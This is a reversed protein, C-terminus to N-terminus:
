RAVAARRSVEEPLAGIRSPQIKAGVAEAGSAQHASIAAEALGGSASGWNGEVTALLKCVLRRRTSAILPQGSAYRQGRGRPIAALTAHRDNSCLIRVRGVRRRARSREDAVARCAGLSGADGPAPSLMSTVVHVERGASRHM